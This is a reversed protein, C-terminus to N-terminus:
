VAETNRDMRRGAVGDARAQSWRVQRPARSREYYEGVIQLMCVAGGVGPEGRGDMKVGDSATRSHIEGVAPSRIM